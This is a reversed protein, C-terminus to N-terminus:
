GKLTKVNRQAQALFRQVIRLRADESRAAVLDIQENRILADLQKRESDTLTAVYHNFTDIAAM